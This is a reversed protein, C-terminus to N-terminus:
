NPFINWLIWKLRILVSCFRHRSSLGRGRYYSGPINFLFLFFLYPKIFEFWCMSTLSLSGFLIVDQGNTLFAKVTSDELTKWVYRFFFCKFIQELFTSLVMWTNLCLHTHRVVSWPSTAHAFSPLLGRWVALHWEGRRSEWVISFWLWASRTRQGAAPSDAAASHYIIIRM